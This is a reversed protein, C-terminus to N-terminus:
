LLQRLMFDVHIHTGESAMLPKQMTQTVFGEYRKGKYQIQQFQQGTPQFMLMDLRAGYALELSLAQSERIMGPMSQTTVDVLKGEVVYASYDVNNVILLVPHLAQDIEQQFHEMKKKCSPHSEGVLFGIKVEETDGLAPLRCIVCLVVKNQM